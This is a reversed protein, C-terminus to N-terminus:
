RVVLELNEAAKTLRYFDHPGTVQLRLGTEPEIWTATLTTPTETITVGERVSWWNIAALVLPNQTRFRTKISDAGYETVGQPLASLRDEQRPVLSEGDPVSM